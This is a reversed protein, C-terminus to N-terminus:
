IVHMLFDFSVTNVAPCIVLRLGYSVLKRNGIDMGFRKLLFKVAALVSRAACTGACFTIITSRRLRIIHVLDNHSAMDTMLDRMRFRSHKSLVCTFSLEFCAFWFSVQFAIGLMASTTDDRINSPTPSDIAPGAESLGGKAFSSSVATDLDREDSHDM